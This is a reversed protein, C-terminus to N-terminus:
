CYSRVGHSAWNPERNKVDHCGCKDYALLDAKNSALARPSLARTRSYIGVQLQIELCEM